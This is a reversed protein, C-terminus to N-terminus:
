SFFLPLLFPLLSHSKYPLIQRFGDGDPTIVNSEKNRCLTWRRRRPSGEALDRWGHEEGWTVRKVEESRANAREGSFGFDFWVNAM